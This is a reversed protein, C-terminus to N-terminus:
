SSGKPTASAGVKDSPIAENKLKRKKYPNASVLWIEQILSRPIFTPGRLDGDGIDEMVLTVGSEDDRILLGFTIVPHPKHFAFVSEVDIQQVADGHADDWRCGVLPLKSM